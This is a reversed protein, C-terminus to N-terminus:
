NCNIIILIAAPVHGETNMMVKGYRSQGARMKEGDWNYLVEGYKSEGQRIQKGDWNYLVKGYKSQGQRVLSQATVAMSTMAAAM